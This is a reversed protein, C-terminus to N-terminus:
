KLYFMKSLLKSNIESTCKCNFQRNQDDKYADLVGFGNQNVASFAIDQYSKCQIYDIINWFGPWVKECIIGMNKNFDNDCNAKKGCHYCVDHGNCAPTFYSALQVLLKASCGDVRARVDDKRKQYVPVFFSNGLSYKEIQKVAPCSRKSL